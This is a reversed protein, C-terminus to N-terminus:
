PTPARDRSRRAGRPPRSRDAARTTATIGWCSRGATVSRDRSGGASGCPSIGVPDPQTSELQCDRSKSGSRAAGRKVASVSRISWARQRQAAALPHATTTRRAVAVTTSPWRGCRCGASGCRHRHGFRAKRVYWERPQARFQAMRQVDEGFAHRCRRGRAPVDDPPRGLGAQRLPDRILCASAASGAPKPAGRGPPASRAPFPDIAPPPGACAASRRDVVLTPSGSRPHRRGPRRRPGARAPPRCSFRGGGRRSCDASFLPRPATSSVGTVLNYQLCAHRQADPIDGAYLGNSSGGREWQEM